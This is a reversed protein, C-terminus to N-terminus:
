LEINFQKLKKHLNSRELKLLDATKTVNGGNRRLHYEIFRREFDDRADKLSDFGTFGIADEHRGSIQAPLDALDLVRKRSMIMLREIVNRLERVNGRWTYNALCDEAEPTFSIPPRGYERAFYQVFHSCLEPIDERRERLSPVRLPIVSLRFYLDERFRGEEIAKELDKNTASIVRVDAHITKSGGVPQFRSEQLVRLVKALRACDKGHELVKAQTNLSMDAVEDLFLTGGDALEFKGARTEHAGTFSGKVHGFLESEILEEPIAACNMEVFPGDARGSLQHILRAAMEKGAGSEGLLLVRGPSPAALAIDEKLRSIALGSGAIEVRPVGAELQKQRRELRATKLANALTLVVRDLNLPKELFDFADLRTAQVALDLTAHGSIMIVPTKDGLERLKALTEVGDCGPLWVDLLIADVRTEGHKLRMLLAEGSEVTEVLYGEDGLIESLTKRIAPEDDCILIRAAAM